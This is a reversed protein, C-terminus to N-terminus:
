TPEIGHCGRCAACPRVEGDTADLNAARLAQARSSAPQACARHAHSAAWWVLSLDKASLFGNHDVDLKAFLTDIESSSLTHPRPSAM